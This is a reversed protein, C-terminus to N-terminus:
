SGYISLAEPHGSEPGASFYWALSTRWRCSNKEAHWSTRRRNSRVWMVCGVSHSAGLNLVCIAWSGWLAAISKGLNRRRNFKGYSVSQSTLGDACPPKKKIVFQNLTGYRGQMYLIGRKFAWHTVNVPLYQQSRCRSTPWLGGSGKWSLSRLTTMASPLVSIALISIAGDSACVSIKSKSKIIQIIPILFSFIMSPFFCIHQCSQAATQRLFMTMDMLPSASDLVYLHGQRTESVIILKDENLPSLWWKPCTVRPFQIWAYYRNPAIFSIFFFTVVKHAAAYIVM